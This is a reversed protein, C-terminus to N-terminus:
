GILGLIILIKAIFMAPTMILWWFLRESFVVAFLLLGIYSLVAIFFYKVIRGLKSGVRMDSELTETLVGAKYNAKEKVGGDEYYEESLGDRLNAKMNIKQALQGSEFFEEFLGDYLGAKFNARQELQGSEFYTEVLGDYLGAKMEVKARLQGNRFFDEAVGTFPEQSNVEFWIGQREVLNVENEKNRM